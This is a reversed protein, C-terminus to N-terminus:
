GMSKRKKSFNKRMHTCESDIIECSAIYSYYPPLHSTWWVVEFKGKPTIRGYMVEDITIKPAQEHDFGIRHQKDVQVFQSINSLRSVYYHENEMRINQADTCYPRIRRLNKQGNIKVCALINRWHEKSFRPRLMGAINKSNSFPGIFDGYMDTHSYYEEFIKMAISALEPHDQPDTSGFVLVKFFYWCAERSLFNLRLAQTTGFNMLKESRGTIIIKSGSPLFSRAAAVLRRWVADDIDDDGDLEVIVLIKEESLTDNKHKIIGGDRLTSLKETRLRNNGSFFVIQSFHDRVRVDYCVHEVFTTKGVKGQGVIPLVGLNYQGPAERQLLFHVTREMEAHRGFMCKELLLHMSYPQRCMRPYGKLFAVFEHMDAVVNLVRDLMLKLERTGQRSSSPRASPPPSHKGPNSSASSMALSRNHHHNVKRVDDGRSRNLYRFRDLLYYGKHMEQRLSHLQLLMAGNTIFRGEAEEVTIAVRLLARELRRLSEEESLGPTARYKSILFSLCRAALEGLAASFITEM